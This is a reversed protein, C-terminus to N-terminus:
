QHMEEFDDKCDSSLTTGEPIPPLTLLDSGGDHRDPSLSGPLTPTERRRTKPDSCGHCIRPHTLKRTLSPSLNQPSVPRREAFPSEFALAFPSRGEPSTREPLQIDEEESEAIEEFACNMSRIREERRVMSPPRVETSFKSFLLFQRQQPNATTM